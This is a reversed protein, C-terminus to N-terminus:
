KLIYLNIRFIFLNLYWCSNNHFKPNDSEGEGHGEHMAIWPRPGGRPPSLRESVAAASSGGTVAKADSTCIPNLIGERETDTGHYGRM